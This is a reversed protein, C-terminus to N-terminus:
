LLGKERQVSAQQGSLTGGGTGLHRGWQFEEERVTPITKQGTGAADWPGFLPWTPGPLHTRGSQAVWREEVREVSGTNLGELSDLAWSETGMLVVAPM